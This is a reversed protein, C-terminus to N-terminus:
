VHGYKKHMEKHSSLNSRRLFTKGCVECSFKREGKHKVMHMRLLYNDFFKENCVSCQVNKEKLHTRRVHDKMFSNRTFMRDCYTCKHGIDHVKILHKQKHYQSQFREPCKPCKYDKADHSKAKHRGLCWQNKFKMGCVDCECDGTHAYTIHVKLNSVNKFSRGCFDCIRNNNSHESNIHRLLIGFYRFVNPCIPCPINDKIIRFPEFCKITKDYLALHKSTLHQILDDLDSISQYCIKCSLTSIDIKVTIREGKCNKICKEKLDCIPHDALVHVKLEDFEVFYKSCFFCSFKAFFKFPIATSMNLVCQINKRIQMVNQKKNPQLPNEYPFISATILEKKLKCKKMHQKMGQSSQCEKSCYVCLKQTEDNPHDLKIHKQLLVYSPFRVECIKCKRYHVTNSHKKRLVNTDFVESCEECPYGGERHYQRIHLALDRKKNFSSGCNDCAFTNVSHVINIHNILYGFYSFQKDCMQCKCDSLRYERYPIDINREYDM